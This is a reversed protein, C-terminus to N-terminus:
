PPASGPAGKTVHVVAPGNGAVYHTLMNEGNLEVVMSNLDPDTTVVIAVDSLPFKWGLPSPWAVSTGSDYLHMQADGPGDPEM